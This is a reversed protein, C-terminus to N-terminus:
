ASRLSSDRAVRADPLYSASEESREAHCPLAHKSHYVLLPALQM